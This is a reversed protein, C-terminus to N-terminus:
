YMRLAMHIAMTVAIMWAFAKMTAGGSLTSTTCMEPNVGCEKWLSYSLQPAQVGAISINYTNVCCGYANNINTIASRCFSSCSFSSSTACNSVLSTVLPDVNTSTSPDLPDVNSRTVIIEGCYQGDQNERCVEVLSRVYIYCNSNQLLTDVLPQGVSAMCEYNFFRTILEQSTCDQAGQPPNLPLGNGCNAPPLDVSCLNWLRYDVYDGYFGLLSSVTTNIYTNICCGLTSRASQLFNRCSSPCAGSRVAGICNPDTQGTLQGLIFRISATGCFAGNESRACANATNRAYTENRCGLAIDAIRQAYGSSGCQYDSITTVCDIIGQTTPVTGQRKTIHHALDAVKGVSLQPAIADSLSFVACSGSALVTLVAIILRKM